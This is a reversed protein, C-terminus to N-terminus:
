SWRDSLTVTLADAEKMVKATLDPANKGESEVELVQLYPGVLRVTLYQHSAFGEAGAITTQSRVWLFTADGVTRTGNTLQTTIGAQGDGEDGDAAPQHQGSCQAIKKEIGKYAAAAAKAGAFAHIEQSTDRVVGGGLSLVESAYLTKAGKGAVELTGTLDCLWPADPTGKDSTTVAFTRMSSGRVGLAKAEAKTLMAGYATAVQADSPAAAVSQAAILTIAASGALTLALTRPLTRM